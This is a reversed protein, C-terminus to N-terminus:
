VFIYVHVAVQEENLVFLVLHQYADLEEMRSLGYYIYVYIFIYIYICRKNVFLAIYRNVINHSTDIITLVHICQFQWKVNFNNKFRSLYVACM